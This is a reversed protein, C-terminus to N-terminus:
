DNGGNNYFGNMIDDLHNMAIGKGSGAFTGGYNDNELAGNKIVTFYLEDINDTIEMGYSAGKLGKGEEWESVAPSNQSGEYYLDQHTQVSELKITSTSGDKYTVNAIVEYDAKTLDENTDPDKEPFLLVIGGYLKNDFLDEIEPNMIDGINEWTRAYIRNVVFYYKQDNNGEIEFLVDDYYNSNFNITFEGNEETINVADENIGVPKISKITTTARTTNLSFKLNPELIYVEYFAANNETTGSIDLEPNYFAPDWDRLFYTYDELSVNFILGQYKNEDYITARFNRDGNTSISNAGNKGGTPDIAFARKAEGDIHELYDIFNQIDQWSSVQSRHENIDNITNEDLFGLKEAFDDDDWTWFYDGEELNDIELTKNGDKVDSEKIYNVLYPNEASVGHTGDEKLELDTVEYKCINGDCNWYFWANGSFEFHHEDEHNSEVYDQILINENASVQYGANVQHGQLFLSFRSDSFFSFEGTQGNSVTITCVTNDNNCSTTGIQNNTGDRLEVYQGDISLRGGDNEMTHEEQNDNSITFTLVYSENAFVNSLPLIYSGIMALLLLVAIFKKPMKRLKKKIQTM